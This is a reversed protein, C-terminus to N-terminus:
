RLSQTVQQFAKHKPSQPATELVDQLPTSRGNYSHRRTINGNRQQLQGLSQQSESGSVPHYQVNELQSGNCTRGSVAIFVILAASHVHQLKLACLLLRAGKHAASKVCGKRYECMCQCVINRVLVGEGDACM